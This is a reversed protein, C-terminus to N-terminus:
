TVNLRYPRNLDLNPNYYVDRYAGWRRRFLDEDEVPHTRGTRGRTGGEHHYLMAYPTYVVLYGKERARLCFDVDNYAVRLREDFGGVEHFRERRVLMCAATVASVNQICRGLGFYGLHDINGALGGGPGVLIGEHQPRGDPFLLRGGVVAVEPRQAHELMAEIWEGSIVETDNNLFLLYEFDEAEKAAFNVIKSFNFEHPFRLVRGDLSSLFSLTEPEKSDNDVVIIEYNRYTSKQRISAVCRRLMDVKDRTPIILAVRPSGPIDYRVRYYGLFAGDLARGQLGRRRLADDIARKAAEYAFPKATDSAAASGPAKRWTYLPKPIHAIRDTAEAMRLVLDYDQSGDYGPRFGGLREVLEKRYVSFHTVYNVSM